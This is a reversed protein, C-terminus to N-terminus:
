VWHFGVAQDKTAHAQVRSSLDVWVARAASRGTPGRMTTRTAYVDGGCRYPGWVACSSLSGGYGNYRSLHAARRSLEASVRHVYRVYRARRNRCNFRRSGDGGSAQVWMLGYGLTKPPSPADTPTGATSRIRSDGGGPRRTTPGCMPAARERARAIGPLTGGGAGASAGTRHTVRTGIRPHLWRTVPM